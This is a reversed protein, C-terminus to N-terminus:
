LILGDVIKRQKEFYLVRQKENTLTILTSIKILAHLWKKMKEFINEDMSTVSSLLFMRVVSLHSNDSELYTYNTSIDIDSIYLNVSNGTENFQGTIAMKELYDLISFLDEKIKLVDDKEILRISYFFSIENVLLQFIKNDFIYNTKKFNKMIMTYKKLYQFMEPPTSIQNFPKMSDKNYLFNWIFLYFMFIYRFEGFLDHPLVNFTSVAESNESESISRLFKMYIDLMSYDAEQPSVFDPLRSQFPIIKQTDVGIVNDLSIKLHKAIIAIENFTFPVDQRLRRYVAGKEIMLIDALTNVMVSNKPFIKRIETLFFQYFYNEM